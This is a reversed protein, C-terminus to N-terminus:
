INKDPIVGLLEVKGGLTAEGPYAVKSNFAAVVAIYAVVLFIAAAVIILRIKLAQMQGNVVVNARYASDLVKISEVATISVIEQIFADAVANAVSIATEPDVSTATITIINSDTSYYTSVMSMIQNTSVEQSIYASAREAVKRSQIVDVYDRMINMGMLSEQYSQYSAAYISSSASYQDPQSGDVVVFAGALAIIGVLVIIWFNKIIADIAKTINLQYDM